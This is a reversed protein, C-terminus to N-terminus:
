VVSLFADEELQRTRELEAQIGTRAVWRFCWIFLGGGVVMLVITVAVEVKAHINNGYLVASMLAISVMLGAGAILLTPCALLTLVLMFEVPHDFLQRLFQAQADMLILLLFTGCGVGNGALCVAAILTLYPVPELWNIMPTTPQTTLFAATTALILSGIVNLNGLRSLQASKFDQWQAANEPSTIERMRRITPVGIAFLFLVNLIRQVYRVKWSEKNAEVDRRPNVETTPMPSSCDLYQAQDSRLTAM